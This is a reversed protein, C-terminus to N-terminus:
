INYTLLSAGKLWRDLHTRKAHSENWGVMSIQATHNEPIFVEDEVHSLSVRGDGAQFTRGFAGGFDSGVSVFDDYLLQKEKADLDPPYVLVVWGGTANAIDTATKIQSYYHGM